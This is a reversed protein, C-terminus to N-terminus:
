AQEHKMEQLMVKEEDSVKQWWLAFSPDDVNYGARIAHALREAYESTADTRVTTPYFTRTVVLAAEGSEFVCSALRAPGPAPHRKGEKRTM